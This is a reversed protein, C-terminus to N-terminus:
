RGIRSITSQFRDVAETSRTNIRPGSSYATAGHGRIFVTARHGSLAILLADVHVTGMSTSVIRPSEYTVEVAQRQKVAAEDTLQYLGADSGALIAIAEEQLLLVSSRDSIASPHGNAYLTASDTSIRDATMEVPVAFPDGRTGIMSLVAVAALLAILAVRKM